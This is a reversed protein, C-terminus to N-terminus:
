YINLKKLVPFLYENFVYELEPNKDIIQRAEQHANRPCAEKTFRTFSILAKFNDFVGYYRYHGELKVNLEPLLEKLSNHMKLRLWQKM